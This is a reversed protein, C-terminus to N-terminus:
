IDAVSGKYVAMVVLDLSDLAADGEEAIAKVKIWQSRSRPTYVSNVGTPKIVIGEFGDAKASRLLAKLDDVGSQSSVSVRVSEMLEIPAPVSEKNALSKLLDSLIAKRDDIPRETIDKGSAVLCDFVVLKVATQCLPEESSQLRPMRQLSSFPLIDGTSPDFPVVEGDLVCPGIKSKSLLSGLERALHPYKQEADEGSRSYIKPIM